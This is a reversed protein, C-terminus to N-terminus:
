IIVIWWRRLCVSWHCAIALGRKACYISPVGMDTNGENASRLRYLTNRLHVRETRAVQRIIILCVLLVRFVQVQIRQEDNPSSYNTFSFIPLIIKLMFFLSIQIKLISTLSCKATLCYYFFRVVRYL